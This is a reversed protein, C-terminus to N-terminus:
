GAGLGFAKSLDDASQKGTSFDECQDPGEAGALGGQNSANGRAEIHRRFRDATGREDQGM